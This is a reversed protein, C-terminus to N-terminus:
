GSVRPDDVAIVGVAIWAWEARLRRAILEGAFLTQWAAYTTAASRTTLAVLCALNGIRALTGALRASWPAFWGRISRPTDIANARRVRRSALTLVTCIRANDVLTM